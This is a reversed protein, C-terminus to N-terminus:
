SRGRPRTPGTPGGAPGHPGSPSVASAPPWPPPRAGASAGGSRAHGAVTAAASAGSAAGLGSHLTSPGTGSGTPGLPGPGVGSGGHPDGLAQRLRHYDDSLYYRVLEPGGPVAGIAVAGDPSVALEENSLRTLVRVSAGFDDCSLLGARDQALALAHVWGDPDLSPAMGIFRELAKAAKRPLNSVFEITPPPREAEPLTLSRLLAGVNARESPGLRMLPAYGGRVSEFARGLLFRREADPRAALARSMAVVPRPFLLVVMEGYVADGVYVEPEVGFLRVNDAIAVKLAPDDLEAAPVLNEGPSPVMYLQAVNEAVIHWIETLPSRAAAPLLLLTRLEEPVTSRRPIFPARKRAQALALKEGPEMYGLLELTSTVRLGREPEGQREFLQNLLRFASAQHLDRDIVRNLETIARPLDEMAYIEALAVRDEAGGPEVALIGRYAEIAAQREGAALLIRALGRQLPVAARPGSKEMAAHAAQILHNEAARRDGGQAARRALALAPPAYAPDYEAARRFQTGAGRVDNMAEHIRGLYFYYRALAEPSLPAGPAAALEIVREIHQRAEPFRGVVFLEQALRYLAEQNAPEHRLVERYVSAARHPDMEGDGHIEALRMLARVRVERTPPPHRELFRVIADAAHTWRRMNAHLEVLASLVDFDTPALVQADLYMKEARDLDGSREIVGAQAVLVRALLAESSDRKRYIKELERYTTAFDYSDPEQRALRGLEDLAAQNEPRIELAIILSEAASRADGVHWTVVGRKRYFESRDAPDGERMAKQALAQGLPAARVWDSRTFYLEFLARNAPLCEPDVALASEYYHLAREHDGLQDGYVQGIQAFVGGREKDDQWLKVELELTQIVRPWDKQRLYLDRLGHVAPLCSPSTKIAADYYRIADDEKGFKSEMVSGCKFYLLAKVARDTTVRIQRRTIDVFEAWKETSEYIRGLADLADKNGPAIELIRRYHDIARNEDRLGEECIQAIRTLMAVAADGAGATALRMTLVSVLKDWDQQKEYYKELADLAEGDAPDVELIREYIRAAEAPDKRKAAAVRAARRLTELRRDDDSTLEARKEYAAILGQWDGNQSFISELFKLATDNDPDLEIVRLYSAAAEGAQGLYQLQIQGRRAYLDGLRYARSAGSEILGIATDYLQMVDHWRERKYCLRELATFTNRNAPDAVFAERLANMSADADGRRERLDAIRGYLEARATGEVAGAKRELVRLLDADRGMRAYIDELATLAGLHREDLELVGEYAHGAEAWRDLKDRRLEGIRQLLTLKEDRKGEAPLLALERELVDTLEAWRGHQEFMRALAHLPRSDQGDLEAARRYYRAAGDVDKLKEEYLQALGQAVRVAERPEETLELESKRVDALEAWAASKELAEALARANRLTRPAARLCQALLDWRGDRRALRELGALAPANAPDIALAARYGDLSAAADNEASDAHRAIELFLALRRQPDEVLDLERRLVSLLDHSRKGKRHLQALARLAEVSSEDIDLAREYARRAADDDKRHREEIDGIELLVAAARVSGALADVARQRLAVAQSWDGSDGCLEALAHLAGADQPQLELARELYARAGRQDGLKGATIRGLERLAQARLAEHQALGTLQELVEALERWRSGRRYLTALAARAHVDHPARRAADRFADEAERVHGLGLDISGAACLYVAASRDEGASQCLQAIKRYAQSLRTRDGQRRYLRALDEHGPLDQESTLSERRLRAATDLDGLRSEALAAARRLPVARAAPRLKAAAELQAVLPAFQGAQLRLRELALEYSAEAPDDSALALYIEIARDADGVRADFVEAARRLYARAVASHGAGRALERYVSGAEPWAGRVVALRRRMLLALRPGWSGHADSGLPELLQAAEATHGERELEVALLMTVAAREGGGSGGDALLELKRRLLSPLSLGAPPDVSCLEISVELAYPNEDRDKGGEGGGGRARSLHQAAASDDGLRDALIHAAEAQAAVADPGGVKSLLTALDNWEGALGLALWALERGDRDIHSDSAITAARGADGLRFLWAEAVERMLAAKLPAGTRSDRLAQEAAELASAEGESIAQRVLLRAGLPHRPAAFGAYRRAADPDDLLDWVLLSLRVQLDAKRDPDATSDAERGVVAALEEIPQADVGSAAGVGAPETLGADLATREHGPIPPPGRRGENTPVEPM